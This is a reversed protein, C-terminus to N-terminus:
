KFDNLTLARFIRSGLRGSFFLYLACAGGANMIYDDIDCFGCMLIIQLAEIVLVAASVAAFFRWFRKTGKFLLPLFLAFPSFAIINGAINRVVFSFPKQGDLWLQVVDATGNTPIFSHNARFYYAIDTLSHDISPGRGYGAEFLTVRCLLMIYLAFFVAFASKIIVQKRQPYLECCLRAALYLAFCAALLLLTSASPAILRKIRLWGYAILSLVFIAFLLSAAATQTKKKM